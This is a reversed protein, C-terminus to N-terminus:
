MIFVVQNELIICYKIDELYLLLFNPEKIDNDGKGWFVHGRQEGGRTLNFNITLDFKLIKIIKGTCYCSIDHLVIENEKKDMMKERFNGVAEVKVWNKQQKRQKVWIGILLWLVCRVHDPVSPLQDM